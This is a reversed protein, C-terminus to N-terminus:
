GNHPDEDRVTCIDSADWTMTTLTSTANQWLWFKPTFHKTVRLINRGSADFNDGRGRFNVTKVLNNHRPKPVKAPFPLDLQRSNWTRLICLKELAEMAASFLAFSRFAESTV